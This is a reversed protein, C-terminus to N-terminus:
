PSGTTKTELIDPDINSRRIKNIIWSHQYLSMATPKVPMNKPTWFVLKLIMVVLCFGTLVAFQIFYALGTADHIYVM